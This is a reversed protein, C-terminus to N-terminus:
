IPFSHESIFISICPTVKLPYIIKNAVHSKLLTNTMKQLWKVANHPQLIGEWRQLSHFTTKKETTMHTVLPCVNKKNKEEDLNRTCYLFINYTMQFLEQRLLPRRFVRACMKSNYEVYMTDLVRCIYYWHVHNLLREDGTLRCFFVFDM